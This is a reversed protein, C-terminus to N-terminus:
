MNFWCAFRTPASCFCPVQTHSRVAEAAEHGKDRVAGAAQASGEQLSAAAHSAKDQAAEAM